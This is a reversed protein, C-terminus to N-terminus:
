VINRCHERIKDIHNKVDVVLHSIESNNSKAAITNIERFLEQALFDLKRGIQKKEEVVAKFKKIHDNLRFIEENIDLKDALIALETFLRHDDLKAGSISEIRSKLTEKKTKVVNKSLKKITTTNQVIERISRLIDKKIANGEKMRMESAKKIVEIIANDIKLKSDKSIQTRERNTIGGLSLIADLGIPNEIKLTKQIKSIQNYYKIISDSNIAIPKSDIWDYIDISLELKGRSFSNKLKKQIENEHTKMVKPLYIYTEVYRNNLSKLEISFSFQDTSKEIFAYGTMSEM